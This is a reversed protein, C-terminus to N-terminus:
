AEAIEQNAEVECLIAELTLTEAVARAASLAVEDLGLLGLEQQAEGRNHADLAVHNLLFLYRAAADLERGCRALQDAHKLVVILQDPIDRALRARHAIDRLYRYCLRSDGLQFAVESQLVLLAIVVPAAFPERLGREAFRQASDLHGLALELKGLNYFLHPRVHLVKSEDSLRLADEFALRAKPNDGQRRYVNGINNFAVALDRSNGCGRHLQIEEDFLRIALALDGSHTAVMASTSLHKALLAVDNAVRAASLGSDAYRRAEEIGRMNILARVLVAIANLTLKRESPRRALHMATRAASEATSYEGLRYNLAAFAATAAILPERHSANSRDLANTAEFMLRALERTGGRTECYIRMAEISQALKSVARASIASVLAIMYNDFDAEIADLAAGHLWGSRDGRRALRTLYFDRHRALADDHQTSDSRLQRASFDQVLPHLSFRGGGSVEVMSHDVLQALMEAKADAVFSAAERTFGGRFVALRMMFRKAERDLARWSRELSAQVGGSIDNGDADTMAAQLEEVIVSLPMSRVWAVNLEIALPWGGTLRALKVAAEPEKWFEFDPRAARGRAEILALSEYQRIASADSLTAEPVALGPLRYVREGRVAIPSRSTALIQLSDCGSLLKDVVSNLDACSECNDLVLLGRRDALVACVVSIADGGASLDVGLVQAIRAPVGEATATDTLDCWYSTPGGALLSLFEHAIRSKGVGGPGVVTILRVCEGSLMARLHELEVVRGIFADPVISPLQMRTKSREATRRRLMHLRPPLAIDIEGAHAEYADITALADSPRGLTELAGVRALLADEDTPDVELLRASIEAVDTPADSCRQLQRLCADRWHRVLQARELDAWENLAAFGPLSGGDLLPRRHLEIVRADDGSTLAQRLSPVDCEVALRARRREAQLAESCGWESLFQRARHLNVRLNLQAEATEADPWLLAFLRDRAVWDGHAALLAIIWGPLTCPLDFRKGGHEWHPRDLLRLM